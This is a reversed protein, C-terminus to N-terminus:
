KGLGLLGELPVPRVLKAATVVSEPRGRMGPRRGIEVNMIAPLKARLIEVLAADTASVTMPALGSENSTSVPEMEELYSVTNGVVPQGDKGTFSYHRAHFVLANM